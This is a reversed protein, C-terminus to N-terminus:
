YRFVLLDGNQKEFEKATPSLWEKNNCFYYFKDFKSFDEEATGAPIRTLTLIVGRQKLSDRTKNFFETAHENMHLPGLVFLNLEDQVDSLAVGMARLFVPYDNFAKSGQLIINM